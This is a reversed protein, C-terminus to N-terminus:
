ALLQRLFNIVLMLKQGLSQDRNAHVLLLRCFFCAQDFMNDTIGCIFANFLKHFFVFLISQLDNRIPDQHFSLIGEPISGSPMKLQSSSLIFVVIKPNIIGNKPVDKPAAHTKKIFFSISSISLRASVPNALPTITAADIQLKNIGAISCVSLMPLNDKRGANIPKQSPM